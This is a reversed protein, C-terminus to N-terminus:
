CCRKPTAWVAVGVKARGEQLDEDELEDGGEGQQQQGEQAESRGRKLRGGKERDAAAKKEPLEDENESALGAEDMLQQLPSFTSGQHNLATEFSSFLSHHKM